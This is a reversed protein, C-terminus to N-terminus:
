NVGNLQSVNSDCLNFCYIRDNQAGRRLRGIKQQHYKAAKDELFTVWENEHIWYTRGTIRIIATSFEDNLECEAVLDSFQSKELGYKKMIEDKTKVDDCKM